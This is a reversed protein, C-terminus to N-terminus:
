LSANRVLEYPCTWLSSVRAKPTTPAQESTIATGYSVISGGYERALEILKRTAKVSVVRGIGYRGDILCASGSEGIITVNAKSVAEGERMQRVYAPLAVAGHSGGRADTEVLLVDAAISKEGYPPSAVNWLVELGEVFRGSFTSGAGM